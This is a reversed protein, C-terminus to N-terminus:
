IKQKLAVQYVYYKCAQVILKIATDWVIGWSAITKADLVEPYLFCCFSQIGRSLLIKVDHEIKSKDIDCWPLYAKMAACQKVSGMPTTLIPTTSAKPPPQKQIVKIWIFNDKYVKIPPVDITVNATGKAARSAQAAKTPNEMTVTFSCNGVLDNPLASYFGKLLEKSTILLNHDKAYFNHWATFACIKVKNGVNALKLIPTNGHLTNKDVKSALKFLFVNSSSNHPGFCKTVSKQIEIPPVSPDCPSGTINWSGPSEPIFM